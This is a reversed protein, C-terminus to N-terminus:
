RQLFLLPALGAFAQVGWVCARAYLKFDPATSTINHKDSICYRELDSM